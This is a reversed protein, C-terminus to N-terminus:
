VSEAEVERKFREAKRMKQHRHLELANKDTEDFPLADIVAVLDGCECALVEHNIGYDHQNRDWGFRLIKTAAQIVEGCEEILLVLKEDRTLM